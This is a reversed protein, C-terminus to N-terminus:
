VDMSEKWSSHIWAFGVCIGHYLSWIENLNRRFIQAKCLLVNRTVLFYHFFQISKMQIFISFSKALLKFQIWLWNYEYKISNFIFTMWSTACPISFINMVEIMWSQQTSFFFSWFYVYELLWMEMGNLAFKIKTTCFMIVRYNDRAISAGINGDDSFNYIDIM